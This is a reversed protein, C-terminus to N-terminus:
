RLHFTDAYIQTPVLGQRLYFWQADHCMEYPGCLFVSVDQGWLGAHSPVAEDSAPEDAPFAWKYTDEMTCRPATETDIDVLTLWPYDKACQHVFSAYPNHESHHRSWVLTVQAPFESASTAMIDRLWAVFPTIGIGGAIWLQRRGGRAPHTGGRPTSVTVEQGEELHSVLYQTGQGSAKICYEITRDWAIGQTRMRPDVGVNVTPGSRGVINPISTMTFPHPVSNRGPIDLYSYQGATYWYSQPRGREIIEELEVTVVAIQPTSRVLKVVRGRYRRDTRITQWILTHCVTWVVLAVAIGWAVWRYTATTGAQQLPAIGWQWLYFAVHAWLLVAAVTFVTYVLDFPIRGLLQRLPQSWRAGHNPGVYRLVMLIGFGAITGWQILRWLLSLSPTFLILGIVLFVYGVMSAWRNWWMMGQAGNYSKNIRPLADFASIASALLWLGVLWFLGALTNQPDALLSSFAPAPQVVWLIGLVIAMMSSLVMGSNAKAVGITGGIVVCLSRRRLLDSHVSNM